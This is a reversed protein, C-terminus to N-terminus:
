CAPQGTACGGSADLTHSGGKMSILRGRLPGTITITITFTISRGRDRDRDRRAPFQRGAANAPVTARHTTSPEHQQSSEGRERGARGGDRLRPRLVKRAQQWPGACTPPPPVDHQVVARRGTAARAGELGEM